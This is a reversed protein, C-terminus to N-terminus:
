KFKMDDRKTRTVTTASGKQIGMMLIVPYTTCHTCKGTDSYISKTNILIIFWHNEFHTMHGGLPWV